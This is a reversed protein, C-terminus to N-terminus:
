YVYKIQHMALLRLINNHYTKIKFRIKELFHQYYEHNLIIFFINPDVWLIWHAMLGYCRSFIPRGMVGLIPRSAMPSPGLGSGPRGIGMKFYLEPWWVTLCLTVIKDVCWLYDQQESDLRPGMCAVVVGCEHWYGIPLSKVLDHNPLSIEKWWWHKHRKAQTPYIRRWRSRSVVVLGGGRRAGGPVYLVTLSVVVHKATRSWCWGITNKEWM